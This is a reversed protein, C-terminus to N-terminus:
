SILAMYKGARGLDTLLCNIMRSSVLNQFFEFLKNESLYSAISQRARSFWVFFVKGKDDFIIFFLFSGWSFPLFGLRVCEFFM